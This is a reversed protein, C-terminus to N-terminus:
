RTFKQIIKLALLDIGILTDISATKFDFPPKSLGFYSLMLGCIFLPRNGNIKAFEENSVELAFSIFIYLRIIEPDSPSKCEGYIISEIHKKNIGQVVNPLSPHGNPFTNIWERFIDLDKLLQQHQGQSTELQAANRFAAIRYSIAADEFIKSAKDHQGVDVYSKGLCFIDETAKKSGKTSLRVLEDYEIQNVLVRTKMPFLCLSQKAM